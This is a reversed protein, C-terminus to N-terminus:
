GGTSFDYGCRFTLYAKHTLVKGKCCAPECTNEHETATAPTYTSTRKTLNVNTYWLSGDMYIQLTTPKAAYKYHGNFQDIPV